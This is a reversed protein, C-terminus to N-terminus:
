RRIDLWNTEIFALCAAKDEPGFQNEWGLPVPSFDPWISYQQNANKLVYFQNKEDDFPNTYTQSM